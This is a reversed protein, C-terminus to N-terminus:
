NLMQSGDSQGLIVSCAFILREGCGTNQCKVEVSQGRKLGDIFKKQIHTIQACHRCHADFIRRTLSKNEDFVYTENCSANSCSIVKGTAILGFRRKIIEGCNCAFSLEAGLGSTIMSGSYIRKIEDLAELVKSRIMEANGYASIQDDKSTPLRTHLALGSLAQWLSGLKSPNLGVHKGIQVFDLKELDEITTNEVKELVPTTSIHLTFDKTVDENAEEAVAKVIDKPQWKKLDDHSIYDHAVRLREYCIREIALRCELAAYTLSAETNKTLLEEIIMIANDQKM